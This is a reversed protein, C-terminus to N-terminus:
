RAFSKNRNSDSFVGVVDGMEQRTIVRGYKKYRNRLARDVILIVYNEGYKKKVEEFKEKAQKGREEASGTEVEVVLKKGNGMITVDPGVTYDMEWDLGQKQAELAVLKCLFAHIASENGSKKVHFHTPGGKGYASTKLEEYGLAALEKRQEESFKVDQILGEFWEFEKYWDQRPKESIKKPEEKTKEMEGKESPNTTILDHIKPPAATFFKHRRGESILLGYGRRCRLLYDKETQNLKVCRDIEEISSANQRMLIKTSAMNLISRGTESRTLDEIEQTIFGISANYKRSTKVFELLYNEAEKSRLLAWGEDILLIKPEFDKRIEKSLFDMVTFMMLPKVPGPLRSLDFNLVRAELDIKTQRDLFGFFGGKRYMGVRNILVELSRKADRAEKDGKRRYRALMDQLVGYLHTFTPPEKKWSERNEAFIGAREYALPLAENLVGKQSQTLGGVIIDFASLLDLLKEGFDKGVLDFVNIIFESDRSLEINDGGLSECLASYEANPDLIYIRPKEVLMAQLTLYKATYSKGSGSTGIIFFHKNALAELYLFIPTKTDEEHAFLIGKKESSGTSLFPFTASLTSTPFDREAKLRDLVLPLTSVTAELVRFKVREPVILMSNLHSKCKELLTELEKKTKAKHNIYLSVRFLKEEGKYLADHLRRTDALKIELSPNPTGKSTSQVLDSTQRIIQNHLFVLTEAITSPKVHISIDYGENRCLFPQLWGDEVKRPYGVAKIVAKLEGDFSVFDPKLEVSEGVEYDRLFFWLEETKLRRSSIGCDALREQAITTREELKSVGEEFEPTKQYPIILYYEREKVENQEIFRNEHEKAEEYISKETEGQVEEDRSAFYEELDVKVTKVLIQVPYTLHNLFERYNAILSKQRDEDMLMLNVPIVKLVSRLDGNSLVVCDKEVTQLPLLSDSFRESNRALWISRFFTIREMFKDELNLFVVAIGLAMFISPVVFKSDGQFPLNYSLFALIGAGLAYILQKADLNFIIKERYRVKDPIDYAM